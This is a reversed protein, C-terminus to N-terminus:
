PEFGQFLVKMEEQHEAQDSMRGLGGVFLKRGSEADAEDAVMGNFHEPAAYPARDGGSRPQQQEEGNRPRWNGWREGGERAQGADRRQGGGGNSNYKKPECPGVKVTRDRITATLDSLARDATSKDAFDVFCYGPNRGSVPDVSIHIKEVETFGNATLADEIEQPKAEYVLNGPPCFLNTTPSHYLLSPAPSSGLYIRRGESAADRQFTRASPSEM